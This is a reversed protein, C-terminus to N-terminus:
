LYRKELSFEKTERDSEIEKSKWVESGQFLNDDNVTFM